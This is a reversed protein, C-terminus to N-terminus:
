FDLTQSYMSTSNLYGEIRVSSIRGCKEQVITTIPPPHTSSLILLFSCCYKDFNIMSCWIIVHFVRGWSIVWINDKLAYLILWYDFFIKKCDHKKWSRLLCSVLEFYKFFRQWVHDLIAVLNIEMDLLPVHFQESHIFIASSSIWVGKEM